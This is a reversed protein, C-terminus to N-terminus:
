MHNDIISRAISGRWDNMIAGGRASGITHHTIVIKLAIVVYSWFSITAFRASQDYM